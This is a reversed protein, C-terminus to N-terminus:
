KTLGKNFPTIYNIFDVKIEFMSGEDFTYEVSKTYFLMDFQGYARAIAHAVGPDYNKGLLYQVREDDTSIRRMNEMDKLEIDISIPTANRIGLLDFSKFDQSAAVFQKQKMDMTTMSGEIQQRGLEEFVGEGVTVLHDKSKINPISFTLFPADEEATTDEGVSKGQVKSFKPITVRKRNIGFHKCWDETAEEPIKADITKKEGVPLSVVRVNFGKQRGLKRKFSLKKLNKGYVFQIAQDRRYLARPRTVILKDLEIYVVLGARQALDQIKDWYNEKSKGNASMGMSNYDPAYQSLTPLTSGTRNVIELKATAPLGSVIQKLLAELPTALSLPGLIYPTDLLLATYDRGELRVTRANEDFDIGEEDVFGIFRTNSTKPVILNEVGGTDELHITVGLSRICRPDFPFQKYDIEASFTDAQTYDNIAVSVRSPRVVFEYSKAETATTKNNFDEFVARLTMAAKPYYFSM